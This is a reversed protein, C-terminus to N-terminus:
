YLCENVDEGNRLIDSLNSERKVMKEFVDYGGRLILQYEKTSLWMSMPDLDHTISSGDEQEKVLVMFSFRMLKDMYTPQISTPKITITQHYEKYGEGEGAVLVKKKYNRMLTLTKFLYM